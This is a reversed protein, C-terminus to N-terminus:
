VIVHANRTDYTPVEITLSSNCVMPKECSFTEKWGVKIETYALILSHMDNTNECTLLRPFDHYGVLFCSLLFMSGIVQSGMNVTPTLARLHLPPRPGHAVKM